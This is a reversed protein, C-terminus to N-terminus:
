RSQTALDVAAHADLQGTAVLGLLGGLRNASALLISRIRRSGLSPNAAAVLGAAGAVQPTAMSTGGVSEYGGGPVTSLIGVGPAAIDVNRDGFGAFGAIQSLRNSATVCVLNRVPYDCPFDRKVDIDIRRNPAAAVFLVKRRKGIANRETRSRGSGGWSANVVRAGNQAAYRFAKVIRATTTYGKSDFIRLPMISVSWNVGTAGIGNNGVAGLIGAVHTGHYAIEGYELEPRPWNDRDAFDWGRWDDVYGNRDDDKGNIALNGGMEAPNSWINANLDPHDFDIGDDAVAITVSRSGTTTDWARPAGIVQAGWLASFRPDNPVTRRHRIYNPEAYAVSPDAELRAIARAVERKGGDVRVLRTRALPLQNEATSAASALARSRPTSGAVRKFRVILEGPVATPGAAQDGFPVRASAPAASLATLLAAVCLLTLARTTARFPM